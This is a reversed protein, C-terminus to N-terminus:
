IDGDTFVSLDLDSSNKLMLGNVSSGYLEISHLEPCKKKAQELVVRKM